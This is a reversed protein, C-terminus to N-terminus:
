ELNQSNSYFFLELPGEIQGRIKTPSEFELKLGRFIPGRDEGEGEGGIGGIRGGRGSAAAAVVGRRWSHELHGLM